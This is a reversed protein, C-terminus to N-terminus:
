RQPAQKGLERSVQELLAQPIKATLVVNNNEQAVSVTALLQSIASNQASSSLARAFRLAGELKQIVAKAEEATKTIAVARLELATLYRASAVLTTGASFPLGISSNGLTIAPEQNGDFRGVWWIPSGLPVLRLNERVVQPAASRRAFHNLMMRLNADENTNSALVTNSNLICVRVPRGEHPITYVTKGEIQESHDALRKLLMELRAPDFRGRMVESYRRDQATGQVAMAFEDLDRAPQIGTTRVFDDYAPDHEFDWHQDFHTAARIPAVNAYLISFADPLLKVIEPARRLSAYYWLAGAAAVLVACVVLIHRKRMFFHTRNYDVPAANTVILVALQLAPNAPQSNSM